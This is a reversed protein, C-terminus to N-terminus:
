SGWHIRELNGGGFAYDGADFNVGVLRQNEDLPVSGWITHIEINPFEDLIRANGLETSYVSVIGIHNNELCGPLVSEMMKLVEIITNGSNIILDLLLYVGNKEIKPFNGYGPSPKSEHTYSARYPVVLGSPSHDFIEIYPQRMTLGGRLIYIPVISSQGYGKSIKGKVGELLFSAIKELYQITRGVDAQNEDMEARAREAEESPHIHIPLENTTNKV